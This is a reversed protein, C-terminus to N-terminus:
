SNDIKARDSADIVHCMRRSATSRIISISTVHKSSYGSHSFSTVTKSLCVNLVASASTDLSASPAPRVGSVGDETDQIRCLLNATPLTVNETVNKADPIATRNLSRSTERSRTRRSGWPKRGAGRVDLCGESEALSSHLVRRRRVLLHRPHLDDGAPAAEGESAVAGSCNM